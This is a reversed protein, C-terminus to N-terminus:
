NVICNTGIRAEANVVARPMILSGEGVTAFSSVLSSPHRLTALQVGFVRIRGAIDARRSNDGVAIFFESEARIVGVGSVVPLGLVTTGILAPDDDLFEIESYRDMALATDAAVKGHGGAGWILLTTAKMPEFGSIGGHNGTGPPQHRREAINSQHHARSDQSGAVPELSGRVVRGARIEAELRARQTWPGAGM